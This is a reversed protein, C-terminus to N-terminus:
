HDTKRTTIVPQIITEMPITATIRTIAMITITATITITIEMIITTEPTTIIPETPTGALRIMITRIRTATIATAATRIAPPAAPIINTRGLLRTIKTAGASGLTM